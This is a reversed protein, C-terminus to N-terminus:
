ETEIESQTVIYAPIGLVKENRNYILECPGNIKVKHANKIQHNQYVRWVPDNRSMLENDIIAQRNVFIITESM